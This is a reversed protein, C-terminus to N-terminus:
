SGLAIAFIHMSTAGNGIPGIDPFTISAVTKTPDLPVTTSYLYVTPGYPGSYLWNRYPMTAVATDGGGPGAAWDNFSLTESSSTGDTYHVVVQGSSGGNTSVGLFGLTTAGAPPNAILMTQGTAVINDNTCAPENPWTYTLGNSTVAAGPSLGNAALAQESYSYGDGDLNACGTLSNDNSIGSNDYYDAPNATPTIQLVASDSANGTGSVVMVSAQTGPSVAWEGNPGSPTPVTFTIATNSWSDVAFTAVNGCPGCGWSNGNDQFQVYSNGQSAGFGTGTITVEQGASATNPSLGTIVPGTMATTSTGIAFIHIAGTGPAPPLTVSVLTKSTDVPLSAEFLDTGVTQPMDSSSNRYSTSAVLTNGYSPGSASGGNLTWDSFGLMFDSSTGDSYKLTAVGELPGNTAAGLFGIQATGAPADVSVTQGDSVVNDPVNVPSTVQSQWTFPVGNVSLARGPVLGASALAQSSYTFGGGDFDGMEPNNDNTVGANDFYDILSGSPAVAVPVTVAHVPVASNGGGGPRAASVSVSQVSYGQPAGQAAAISLQVTQRGDPPLMTSTGNFGMPAPGEFSLALGSGTTATATLEARQPMNTMNQIIIPVTTASGPAVQAAPVGADAVVPAEGASFSPPASMPGAGWQTDPTSGLTFDLVTQGPGILDSVPAWPQQTPSGNITLSQVYPNSDSANNGIITTTHGDFHLQVYPFLPSGLVVYPAGPAEPYMGLMAWAEWSSMAGLDDNGPEGGPTNTYVADTSYAPDIIRRVLQQTLYPAGAYDYAWPAELDTENGAYYYPSSESLNVYTFFSNLRSIAAQNGGMGAILAGLNQPVLWNYQSADGEQFGNQNTGTLEQSLASGTPFAGTANKPLIYGNAPDFLNEWNQARQM